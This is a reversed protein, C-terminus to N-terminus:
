SLEARDALPGVVHSVVRRGLARERLRTGKGCRRVEAIYRRHRFFRHCGSVRYLSVTPAPVCVPCLVVPPATKMVGNECPTNYEAAAGEGSM